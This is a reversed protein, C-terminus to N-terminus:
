CPSTDNMSPAPPNLPHDRPPLLARHECSCCGRPETPHIAFLRARARVLAHFLARILAPSAPCPFCPLAM